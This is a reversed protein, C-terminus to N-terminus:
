ILSPSRQSGSGIRTAAYEVQGDLTEVTGRVRAPTGDPPPPTQAFAPVAILGAMAVAFLSLLRM